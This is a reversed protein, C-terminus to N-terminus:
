AVRREPFHEFFSAQPPVETFPPSPMAPTSLHMRCCDVIQLVRDLSAAAYGTAEYRRVQEEHIGLAESLARQTLGAAVRLEILLTPLREVVDLHDFTVQGARLAEFRALEAKLTELQSTLANRQARLAIPHLEEARGDLQALAREFTAVQTRTVRYQRENQIM